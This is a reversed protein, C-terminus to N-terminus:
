LRRKVAPTVANNAIVDQILTDEAIHNRKVEPLYEKFLKNLPEVLAMATHVAVIRIM